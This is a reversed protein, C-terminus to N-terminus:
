NSQYEKRMDICHRQAKWDNSFIEFDHTYIADVQTLDRLVNANMQDKFHSNNDIKDLFKRYYVCFQDSRFDNDPFESKFRAFKYLSSNLFYLKHIDLFLDFESNYFRDDEFYSKLRSNQIQYEQILESVRNLVLGDFLELSKNIQELTYISLKPVGLERDIRRDCDSNNIVKICKDIYESIESLNIVFLVRAGKLRMKKNNKIKLVATLYALGGALLTAFPGFAQIFELWKTERLSENLIIGGVNIMSWFVLLVVFVGLVFHILRM